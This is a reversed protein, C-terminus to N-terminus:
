LRKKQHSYISNLRTLDANAFSLLFQTGTLLLIAVLMQTGLNTPVNTFMGHIWSYLGITIGPIFLMTGLVLNISPLSFDRLYYTYIIRKILNRTHKISFEVLARSIKLSSNEQDYKAAMPFQEVRADILYLRFLMDSEFFYRTDVKELPLKKLIENKIGTFGNNPDFLNWYGTSAKAVFSLGLNGLLRIKPMQRVDEISEFRNGKVYDASGEIMQVLLKPILEPDIQGDGDVKVTFDMEDAISERYGKIVSAGVGSNKSNFLVTVRKDVCHMLVHKGTQEPCSDDIVYIKKVEPGIRELVGLIQERVRYCPIVVAVKLRKTM